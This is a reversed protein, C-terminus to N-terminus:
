EVDIVALAIVIAEAAMGLAIGHGEHALGLIDAEHFRDLNERAFCAHRHGGAIRDRGLPCVTAAFQGPNHFLRDPEVAQLQFRCAARSRAIVQRPPPQAGLRDLPELDAERRVAPPRQPVLEPALADGFVQDEARPKCSGARAPPLGIVGEAVPDHERDAIRPSAADGEAAPRHIWIVIRFIEVAGFGRKEVLAATKVVVARRALRGALAARKDNGFAVHVHDRQALRAEGPRHGGQASRDGFILDPKQPADVGLRDDRQIAIRRALTRCQPDDVKGQRQELGPLAQTKGGQWRSLIGVVQDARAARLRHLLNQVLRLRHHPKQPLTFGCSLVKVARFALRCKPLRQASRDGADPIGVDATVIDLGEPLELLVDEAGTIAIHPREPPAPRASRVPRCPLM